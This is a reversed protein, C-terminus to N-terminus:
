ERRQRRQDEIRTIEIRPHTGRLILRYVVTHYTRPVV